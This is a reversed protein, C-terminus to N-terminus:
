GSRSGTFGHRLAGTKFAVLDEFPAFILFETGIVATVRKVIAQVFIGVFIHPADISNQSFVPADQFFEIWFAFIGHIPDGQRFFPEIEMIVRVNVMSLFAHFINKAIFKAVAPKIIILIHEHDFFIVHFLFVPRPVFFLRKQM